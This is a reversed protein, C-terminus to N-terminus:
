PRVREGTVPAPAGERFVWYRCGVFVSITYVSMSLIQAGLHAPASKSLLAVCASLTIQNAVFAMLVLILYKPGSRSVGDGRRFVFIRNLFFSLPIGVVYGAANAIQPSIHLGVDLTATVLFGVATNLLGALGYRSLLKLLALSNGM